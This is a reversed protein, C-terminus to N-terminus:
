AYNAMYDIDAWQVDIPVGAATNKDFTERIEADSEYGYRCLHFGLSWYPPMPAQGIVKAKQELVHLATPGMFILFDLIGGITRYTLAPTQTFTIDMSNSNLLLVGHAEDAKDSEYMLYFPHSGYSSKSAATGYNLFLYNKRENPDQLEAVSKEHPNMSEGLGYLSTSSVTSTLEIFRDAFILRRWSTEFILTDSNKRTIRLGQDDATINYKPDNAENFSVSDLLTLLPPEWRKRAKDTVRIRITDDDLGIVTVLVEQVDDQFGSQRSTKNLIIQSSHKEFPSISVVVYNELDDPFSCKPAKESLRDNWVCGRHNCNDSMVTLEDVQDPHCDYLIDGPSGSPNWRWATFPLVLALTILIIIAIFAGVKVRM